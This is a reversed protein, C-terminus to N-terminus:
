ASGSSSAEEIRAVAMAAVKKSKDSSLIPALQNFISSPVRDLVCAVKFRVKSDPSAAFEPWLGLLSPYESSCKRLWKEANNWVGSGGSVFAVRLHGELAEVTGHGEILDHVADVVALLMPIQRKDRVYRAECKREHERGFTFIAM